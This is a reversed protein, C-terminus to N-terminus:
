YGEGAFLMELNLMNNFYQTNAKEIELLGSKNVLQKDLIALSSMPVTSAYADHILLNWSKTVTDIQDEAIGGEEILAQLSPSDPPLKGLSVQKGIKSGARGMGCKPLGDVSFDEDGSLAIMYKFHNPALDSIIKDATKTKRLIEHLVTDYRILRSHDGSPRFVCWEAPVIQNIDTLLAYQLDIDWNSIVISPNNIRGDMALLYPYAEPDIEGTDVIHIHPIFEVVTSAVSINFNTYGRLIDYEGSAGGIRKGYLHDKYSQSIDLKDKCKKSSHYMVVTANRNYYRYLFNRYHGAINLLEGALARPYRNLEGRTLRSVSYESFLQRLLSNINIFVFFEEADLPQENIFTGLTEHLIEYKPRKPGILSGISNANDDQFSTYSRSM